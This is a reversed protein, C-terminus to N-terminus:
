ASSSTRNKTSSLSLEKEIQGISTFYDTKEALFTIKNRDRLTARMPKVKSGFVM